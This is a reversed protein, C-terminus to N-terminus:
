SSREDRREDRWQGNEEKSCQWSWEQKQFARKDFLKGKYLWTSNRKRTQLWRECWCQTKRKFTSYERASWHWPKWKWCSKWKWKSGERFAKWEWNNRARCWWAFCHQCRRQQFSGKNGKGATKNTTTTTKDPWTESPEKARDQHQQLLPGERVSSNPDVSRRFLYLHRGCHHHDLPPSQLSTSKWQILIKM